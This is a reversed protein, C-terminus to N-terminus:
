HCDFDDAGAPKCLAPWGRERWYDVLGDDRVIKKFRESKRVAGYSSHWLDALEVGRARAHEYYELM